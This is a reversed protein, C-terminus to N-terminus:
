HSSLRAPLPKRSRHRLPPRRICQLATSSPRTSSFAFTLVASANISRHTATLPPSQGPGLRGRALSLLFAGDGEKGGKAEQEGDEKVREVERALVRQGKRRREERDEETGGRDKGFM